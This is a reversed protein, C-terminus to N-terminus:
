WPEGLRRPWYDDPPEPQPEMAPRIHSFLTDEAKTYRVKGDVITWHVHTMYHLLDGDTIAFDADKGPEISGVRDDIGVVRAADLTITRVAEANSMGGRVAFAAAMPLHLLDRGALGGLSIRIGPGFLSGAPVVAVRVGHDHLIAANQITAGTDRNVRRNEGVKQRPRVIVSANARGIRDPVTWGEHVGRLIMRIGYDEALECAQLISHVDGVDLLAAANGELLRRYTAYKGRLFRKDPEEADPNTQKEREWAELDRLYQRVRDFDERLQRRQRPNRTDYRLDVWLDDRLVHKELSGFTLKTATDDTLATTIGAALGLTMTLSFPDTGDAPNGDVLGASQVAVLGPYVHFGSVDMVETDPPLNVDRGVAHIRGNRCLITGEPIVPGSVTHVTAGVLAFYEDEPRPQEPDDEPDDANGADDASETEAPADPEPAPDDAPEDAARAAGPMALLALLLLLRAITM